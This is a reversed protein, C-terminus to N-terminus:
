LRKALWHPKHQFQVLLGKITWRLTLTARNMQITPTIHSTWASQQMSSTKRMIVRCLNKLYMLQLKCTCTRTCGVSSFRWNQGCGVVIRRRQSSAMLVESLSVSPESQNSSNLRKLDRKVDRQQQASAHYFRNYGLRSVKVLLSHQGYTGILSTWYLMRIYSFKVVLRTESM